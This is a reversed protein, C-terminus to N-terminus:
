PRRAEDVIGRVAPVVEAAFREIDRTGTDPPWFVFGDVGLELAFSGLTDIWHRVPGDLPSDGRAGDTIAGALNYIRRIDRPDRGAAVAADDLQGAATRFADPPLYGFSPVWGDALRGILRMGRPKYAGIWIEVRHAPPPGPPYGPVPYLPGADASSVRDGDLM